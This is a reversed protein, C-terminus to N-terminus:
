TVNTIYNNPLFTILSWQGKFHDYLFSEGNAYPCTWPSVQSPPPLLHCCQTSKRLVKGNVSQCDCHVKLLRVVTSTWSDRWREWAHAQCTGPVCTRCSALVFWKSIVTWSEVGTWVDALVHLFVWVAVGQVPITWPPVGRTQADKEQEPMCSLLHDNLTLCVNM